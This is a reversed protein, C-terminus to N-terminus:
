APLAFVSLGFLTTKFGTAMVAGTAMAITTGTTAVSSADVGSDDKLNKLAKEYNERELNDKTM